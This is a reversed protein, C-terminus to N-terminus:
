PSGEEIVDLLSREESKRVKRMALLCLFL